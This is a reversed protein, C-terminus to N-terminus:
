MGSHVQGTFRLSVKSAVELLKLLELNTVCTFIILVISDSLHCFGAV